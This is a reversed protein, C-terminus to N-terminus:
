ICVSDINFRNTLISCDVRTPPPLVAVNHLTLHRREELRGTQQQIIHDIHSYQVINADLADASQWQSYYVLPQRDLYPCHIDCQM